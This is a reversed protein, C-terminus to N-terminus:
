NTHKEAHRQGFILNKLVVWTTKFISKNKKFIIQQTIGNRKKNRKMKLWVESDRM